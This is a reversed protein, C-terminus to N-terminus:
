ENLTDWFTVIDSLLTDFRDGGSEAVASRWM